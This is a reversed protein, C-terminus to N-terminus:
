REGLWGVVVQAASAIVDNRAHSDDQHQTTYIAVVVPDRRPPWLVAIDNATGYQGTGTKDGIIWDAPIGAKIRSAGTTNGCLWDQLIERHHPVLANGLVLRQLSRGMAEPTSTDRADGPIATNLDTEWRDLRFETDGISRAFATVIKPGGLKRILLNAATNDSYRIAAACLEAVTMGDAIHKETIPSYDALDSKRYKLRQQMLGEVQANRALIAAAAMVKFTSCFPFRERAHYRLLADNATNVAFVGLRGGFEQELKKLQANALLSDQEAAAWTFRTTSFPISGAALLLKRRKSLHNM